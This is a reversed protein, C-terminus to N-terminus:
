HSLKDRELREERALDPHEDLAKVWAQEKTISDRKAIQQAAKEIKSYVNTEDEVMGSGIEKFIVGLSDDASKLLRSVEAFEGEDLKDAMKKMIPGFQDAKISLNKFEAAKAVFERTRREEREQSLTNELAQAKVISEENQKWLTAVISRMEEPIDSMDPTGDDNKKLKYGYKIKNKDETKAKMTEEDAKAKAKAKMAEEDAKAKAKAKQQEEEEAPMGYGTNSAGNAKKTEEPPAYGYGAMEALKKMMDKPMDTKVAQLVRLAMQCAKKGKDSLKAAKAIEELQKEAESPNDSLAVAKIIDEFGDEVDLILENTEMKTAGKGHAKLVLFKRKNAAKDVLSVEQVDLDFLEPM